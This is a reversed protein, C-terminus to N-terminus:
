NWAVELLGLVDLILSVKGNGLIAGGAIGKIKGIGDGLSKIVVQQQGLAEDVMLCGRRDEEEVVVLSADKPSEFDAKVGFLENLRVIPLLENHVQAMEVQGNITTVQEPSPKLCSDISVIPIIYTQDGIRVLQGDIIALTLPLKITFTTGKGEESIIDIKGRLSEINKKVVDMGVGRGSVATVQEATSFGPAFILKFIDQDSLDEGSSIINKEIAKAILKDKNLGRGDDQIEIIISGAQHYARLCVRGIAPKGAAERDQASEIGHDVSNRIMHILPDAIQDVVIRDLETEEGETVFDIKKGTKRSLDRVLRAMKQFVGHIPVMRMMMALEQLERAIKGQHSVVQNLPHEPAVATAAEQSVMSQAIVLEGVMNVLNDLREMSVKIKEDNALTKKIKPSESAVAASGTSAEKPESPSQAQTAQSSEANSQESAEKSAEESADLPISQSATAEEQSAKPATSELTGNKCAELNSLIDELGQQPEVPNGAEVCELLYTVMKKLMDLASFVIDMTAGVLEIEGNRAMDLLNEASHALSGIETLNLFGAMGKITHFGRFVCNISEQDKPNQEIELLASEATEIHEIAESAFDVVLPVDEESILVAETSESTAESNFDQSTAETSDQAQTDEILQDLLNGELIPELISQLSDINSGLERLLYDSVKAGDGVATAKIKAESTVSEVKNKIDDPIQSIDGIEQSIQTFIDTLNAAQEQSGPQLVVVESAAAQLLKNLKENDSM